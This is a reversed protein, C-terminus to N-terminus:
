LAELVDRLHAEYLAHAQEAPTAGAVVAGARRRDIQELGILATTEAGLRAALDVGVDAPSLGTVPEDKVALRDTLTPVRLSSVLANSVALVCPPRVTVRLLADEAVSTARLLGDDLPELDTLQTLCPRRLAAAVRFPVTGGDGPGSRSGLLVVDSRDVLAFGVILAATAAPAFDLAAHPEVRAARAFGLARLTKLHPDAERGAVSLAALETAAGMAARAEALRLALELASEDFCNLVRRVYKTPEAEGAARGDAGSGAALAAWDSARLAEYDPTTRFCVLIRV